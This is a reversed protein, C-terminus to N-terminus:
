VHNAARSGLGALLCVLNLVLVDFYLVRHCNLEHELIDYKRRLWDLFQRSQHENLVRAGTKMSRTWKWRMSRVLVEQDGLLDFSITTKRRDVNYHGTQPLALGALADIAENVAEIHTPTTAM